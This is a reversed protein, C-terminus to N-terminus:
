NDQMGYKLNTAIRRAWGRANVPWNKLGTMFILREANVGLLLDNPDAKKVAAKSVPGFQGDDAVGAARQLWRIAMGPGSNIAADLVSFAVAEPLNDGDVTDWFDRKYIAIAGDRTLTKINVNPYSRKSIGWHTEGGPDGQRKAEEPSLYGGEYPFVREILTPFRCSM